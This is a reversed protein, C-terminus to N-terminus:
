SNSREGSRGRYRRNKARNGCVEMQCWHGGRNRSTDYFAWRCDDAACIKLRRWEDTLQARLAVGLMRAIVGDVTEAPGLDLEISGDAAVELPAPLRAALENLAKADASDPAGDLNAALMSRILARFRVLQRHEAEGVEIATAALGTEILWDRTSEPDRLREEDDEFSYTNALGQVALLPEPAFKYEIQRHLEAVDM